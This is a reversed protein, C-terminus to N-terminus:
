GKPRTAVWQGSEREQRGVGLRNVEVNPFRYHQTFRILYRSTSPQWPYYERSGVITIRYVKNSTLKKTGALNKIFPNHKVKYYESNWTSTLFIFRFNIKCSIIGGRGIYGGTYVGYESVDGVLPTTKGVEAQSLGPREM